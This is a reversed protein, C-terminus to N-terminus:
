KRLESLQDTINIANIKNIQNNVSFFDVVYKRSDISFNTSWCCHFLTFYYSTEATEHIEKVKTNLEAIQIQM